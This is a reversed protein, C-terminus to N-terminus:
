RYIKGYDLDTISYAVSQNGPGHMLPDLQEIFDDHSELIKCLILIQDQKIKFLPCSEKVLDLVETLKMLLITRLLVYEWIQIPCHHRKSNQPYREPDFFSRYSDPNYGYFKLIDASLILSNKTELCLLKAYIVDCPMDPFEAALQIAVFAANLVISVTETYAESINFNRVDVDWGFNGITVSLLENDLGAYHVLEHYALKVIEQCKTLTICNNSRQTVGSVNFANSTTKLEEIIQLREQDNTPYKVNRVHHDLSVSILLGDYNGNIINAFASIAQILATKVCLENDNSIFRITLRGGYVDLIFATESNMTKLERKFSSEVPTNYMFDFKIFEARLTERPQHSAIRLQIPELLGLLMKSIIKFLPSSSKITDTTLNIFHNKNHLIKHKNTPTSLRRLHKLLLQMNIM